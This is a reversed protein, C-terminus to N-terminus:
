DPAQKTKAAQDDKETETAPRKGAAPPATTTQDQLAHTAKELKTRADNPM